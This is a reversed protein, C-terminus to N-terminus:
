CFSSEALRSIPVERCESGTTVIVRDSESPRIRSCGTFTGFSPLVTVGPTIWFCPVTMSQRGRGDLGYGPHLHGALVYGEDMPEPEHRLRFPGVTAGDQVTQIDSGVPLQGSKRDHNGEILMIEVSVRSRWSLFHEVAEATKGQRAHWLDGLIILRQVASDLSLSLKELTALTSGPPVPLGQSRFSAGKGLHIDAVFLTSESPWLLTGDPRFEVEEGALQTRM